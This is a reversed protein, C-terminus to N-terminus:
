DLGCGREDRETLRERATIGLKPAAVGAGQRGWKTMRGHHHVVEVGDPEGVRHDVLDAAPGLLGGEPVPASLVIRQVPDSCWRM